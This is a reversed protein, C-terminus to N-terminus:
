RRHALEKMVDNWDLGCEVMLVMMHYMFDSIEYKLEEADPNKAAIVIETAEEGCKKLIKDIGKDFLYNTYSGEKPNEKRDKIIGYVDNLVTLPNVQTTGRKVLDTYFCTPNGTHCAVGLQKVKALITDRDCDVMLHKVYQFHGSTEGKLWLENRSRSWYTMKGTEITKLFAEENMYAVMLVEGTKYDQTVVPILGAENTKFKQFSLDSEFTNVSVGNAKLARKSKILSKKEFYNTAVGLVNELTILEELDNRVLSDRIVITMEAKKINEKLKPSVVVHKLLIGAIGLQKLHQTYQVDKFDGISDIEMIIKDKGFRAIGEELVKEDKILGQRVVVKQAGSYLAKKIDEFREVYLGIFLPIDYEKEITRVIKLFEERSDEDKTYNYLFLSDAGNTDYHEAMRTISSEVENEGNIYGIILKHNM